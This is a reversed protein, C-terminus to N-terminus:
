RRREVAPRRHAAVVQDRAKSASWSMAWGTSARVVIRRPPLCRPCHQDHVFSAASVRSRLLGSGM